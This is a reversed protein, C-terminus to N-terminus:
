DNELLELILKDIISIIEYKTKLISQLRILDDGKISILDITKLCDKLQNLKLFEISQLLLKSNNEKEINQIKVVKNVLHVFFNPNFPKIIQDEKLTDGLMKAIVSNSLLESPYKNIFEDILTTMNHPAYQKIIELELSGCEGMALRSKLSNLARILLFKGSQEIISQDLNSGRTGIDKIVDMSPKDSMEESISASVLKTNQSVQSNKVASHLYNDIYNIFHAVLLIVAISGAILIISISSKKNILVTSNV